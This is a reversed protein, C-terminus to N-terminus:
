KKIRLKAAKERLEKLELKYPSHTWCYEEDKVSWKNCETCRLELPPLKSHKNKKGKKGHDGCAISQLSVLLAIIILVTKM